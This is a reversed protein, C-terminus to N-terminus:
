PAGLARIAATVGVDKEGVVPMDGTLAVAVDPTVGSGDVLRDDPSYYRAITFTAVSGDPLGMVEQVTGKGYSREGVVRARGRDQLAAALLESASASHRDQLVVIPTALDTGSAHASEERLIRGGRGRTRMLVGDAVFTDAIVLAEGVEGGPNGRLDIVIGALDKGLAHRRAEIARKFADGSEAGFRRLVVHVYSRGAEDRVVATELMKTSPRALVLEVARPGNGDVPQVLLAVEDGIAGVLLLEAERQSALADVSKGAIEVVADGPRLGERAAPSDPAVALVELRRARSAAETRMAVALGTEGSHKHRRLAKRDAASLFHSHPDLEGLMASLGASLLAAEDVPEYYRSFVAEVAQDFGARDLRPASAARLGPELAATAVLTCVVGLAFGVAGIRRKMGVM